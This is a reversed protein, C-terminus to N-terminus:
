DVVIKFLVIIVIFDLKVLYSTKVKGDNQWTASTESTEKMNGIGKSVRTEWLFTDLQQTRLKVLKEHTKNHKNHQVVRPFM